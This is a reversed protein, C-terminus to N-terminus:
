NQEHYFRQSLAVRRALERLANSTVINWTPFRVPVFTAQTAPPAGALCLWRGSRRALLDEVAFGPIRDLDPPLGLLVMFCPRAPTLCRLVDYRGVELPFLFKYDVVPLVQATTRLLIDLSFETLRAQPDLRERVELRVELGRGDAHSSLWSCGMRAESALARLYSYAL